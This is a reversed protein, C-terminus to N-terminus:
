KIYVYTSIFLPRRWGNKLEILQYWVKGTSQGIYVYPSLCLLKIYKMYTYKIYNLYKGTSKMTILTEM